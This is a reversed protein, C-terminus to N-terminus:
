SLGAMKMIINNSKNVFANCSPDNGHYNTAVVCAAEADYAVAWYSQGHYTYDIHLGGLVYNHGAETGSVGYIIGVYGHPLNAGIAPRVPVDPPPWGTVSAVGTGTAQVGVDALHGAPEGTVPVPSIATIRVPGPASNFFLAEGDAPQGPTTVSSAVVVAPQGSVIEQGLPGNGTSASGCACVAIGVLSAALGCKIGRARHTTATHM